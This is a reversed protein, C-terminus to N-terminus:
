NEKDQDIVPIGECVIHSVKVQAEAHALRQRQEGNRQGILFGLLLAIVIGALAMGYRNRARELEDQLETM